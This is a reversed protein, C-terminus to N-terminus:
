DDGNRQVLAVITRVLAEPTVPKSIHQQFGVAIAQRQDYEGAYATLAIAPIQSNQDTPLTRLQQMLLYGDMEPMGIDSIVLDFKSQAITVLAEIGSSVSTVIADAQELVFAVLERSDAEDDVVLIRLGTLQAYSTSLPSDPNDERGGFGLERSGLLPLRVTFTAGQGEGPSEARVTGGHMEVIQRLIALGLGLGGFKRTTAADEQRFHEFVYPLFDPQIGKGTDTVQIQANTGVQTLAVTIQGNAPTFKVANSLLNWVVQQLRGADGNVLGVTPSIQTQISLSKAEVALRVTELAAAIVTRLDVPAIALRLKGSLIRSIDLLDDILQVQLQANREITELAHATRTSDLKGNRLLKSWGLIPNMPTRLEHSLVALFEDKIRNAQEATARAAQEQELLRLRAQEIQKQPEIDTCTGFWKVTRGQEDKLPIGQGLFWRYTGDARRFRYEIEYFEGNNVSATWRDRSRELDDPHIISLWDLGQMQEASLGTYDCFQQNVYENQGEANTIWVFQPIAEALLRYRAESERLDTEAQKRDTIDEAVGAVRYPKGTEESIPFGRDRVWRISGDPRVIRYEVDYNGSMVQQYLTTRVQERDDPHIADLWEQYNAYVSECSRGWVQEYAPSVYLLRQELPISIWFVNQITEAMQRFREESQSLAIEAQKRDTIDIILGDWVEGLETQQPRSIGQIWKLQGSPTILRGEWQWVGSCEVAAAVSAQLSPFDDPHILAWLSRADQLVTEPELEFLDRSGTSVYTFADSGDASSAFRYVMGPMNKILTRLRAENEQLAAEQQVMRRAALRLELEDVVIAALDALISQQELSLAECPQTDLLCLTGLNFGDHTLLPAGAYFRVGPERQVFPNCAFREDLRTDPVVLVEDYLLAFSCLTADRPVEPLDFGYCSKFWARSEDVLSVLVIPMNFLRAALTTIRDFAAEPPTDLIKYRHLAALRQAENAPIPATISTPEPSRQTM